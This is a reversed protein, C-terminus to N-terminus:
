KFTKSVIYTCFVRTFSNTTIPDYWPKVYYSSFYPCAVFLFHCQVEHDPEIMRRNRRDIKPRNFVVDSKSDLICLM